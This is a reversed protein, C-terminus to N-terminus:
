QYKLSYSHFVLRCLPAVDVRHQDQAFAVPEDVYRAVGDLPIEIFIQFLPNVIDAPYVTFSQLIRSTVLRQLEMRSQWFSASFPARCTAPPLPVSSDSAFPGSRKLLIFHIGNLIRRGGELKEILHVLLSLCVDTHITLYADGVQLLESFSLNRFNVEAIMFSHLRRQRLSGIVDLTCDPVRSRLLTCGYIDPVNEMTAEVADMYFIHGANPSPFSALFQSSVLRTVYGHLISTTFSVFVNGNRIFLRYKSNQLDERRFDEIKGIFVKEMHQSQRAEECLENLTKPLRKFELNPEQTPQPIDMPESPSRFCNLLLLHTYAVKIYEKEGKKPLQFM